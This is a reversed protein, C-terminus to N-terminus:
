FRQLGSLSAVAPNMEDLPILNPLATYPSFDPEDTFVDFMPNAALDFQTLPPLGLILEITRLVSNQNYHTSIVEGRRTYPSAVLAVTRRGDVHDPGGQPDDQIVFIVTENWFRSRSIAEVIRGLALDNDAVAARPTPYGERTGVTHDNPLLMLMLSPLDGDQEYRELERLFERARYVDPVTGPFGVFHPSIYDTLTHLRARATVSVRTTGDRYDAYIDSWTADGPEIVAEVFEGYNRFTLGASLVSDWIFGSAAYALADGGDYPYSRVFGGFSREIYDTVIGEDTWQHGDASLVGNCYTNDLLVFQEALAHHNPTVDKGFLVLNPDGNGEPVDGFIQDYTKNEKIIYLVHKFVSVEGPGRPVPVERPEVNPLNLARHITPLRMNTAARITHRELEDAAPTPVFSVSGLHDRSNYGGVGPQLDRGGVGKTSAVYLTGGDSSLVVAGPYWGTPVLGRLGGRGLDFVAVANNGGNAVYLREGDASVTLANPASGLPLEPIPRTDITRVVQDSATDIVSVTDSNANAVYLYADDPSLAMGSPHLGVAIESVAQGGALDLVSVTGTSAIGTSPDVVVDSGSSPGTVDEPRPRRGGWNSVYAKGGALRVTFPAIGVPIETEVEGTAVDIVAVSNNRSLAVYARGTAPDLALGGPYAGRRDGPDTGALPIEDAWSFTADGGRTASRLLSSDTVWITEGDSSFAIGVFSGGADPLPLTQLLRHSVTDFLLVDRMNKVALLTGDPSLALDTPRGPVTVTDGAPDIRQTTAVVWTGDDQPGVVAREFALDPGLELAEDIGPPTTAGCSAALALCPIWFCRKM